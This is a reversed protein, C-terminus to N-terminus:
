YKMRLFFVREYINSVVVRHTVPINKTFDLNCFIRIYIISLIKMKVELIRWPECSILFIRKNIYRLCQEIFNTSYM